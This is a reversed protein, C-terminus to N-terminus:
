RSQRESAPKAGSKVLRLFVTNNEGLNTILSQDPNLIRIKLLSLMAPVGRNQYVISDSDSSTYNNATYYRSVISRISGSYADMGIFSSKFLCDVEM